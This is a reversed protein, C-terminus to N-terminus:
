IYPSGVREVYKRIVPISAIRSGDDNYRTYLLDKMQVAVFNNLVYEIIPHLAEHTAKHASGEPHCVIISGSRIQAIASAAIHAPDYMTKPETDGIFVRTSIIPKDLRTAEATIKPGETLGPTAILEPRQGTIQETIDDAPVIETAIVGDKYQHSVSHNILVNGNAVYELAAEKYNIVSQAVVAPNIKDGIGYSSFIQQVIHSYIPTPGDDIRFAVWNLANPAEYVTEGAEWPLFLAPPGPQKELRDATRLDGGAPGNISSSTGEGGLMVAGGLIAVGAGM